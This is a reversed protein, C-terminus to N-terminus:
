THGSRQGQGQLLQGDEQGDERKATSRLWTPPEMTTAGRGAVLALYVDTVEIQRGESGLWEEEFISVWDTRSEFAVVQDSRAQALPADVRCGHGNSRWLGRRDGHPM